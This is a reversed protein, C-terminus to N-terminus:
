EEKKFKKLVISIVINNYIPKWLNAIIMNLRKGLIHPFNLVPIKVANYAMPKWMKIFIGYYFYLKFVDERKLLFLLGLKKLFLIMLFEMSYIQIM